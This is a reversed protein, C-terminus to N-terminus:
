NPSKDCSPMSACHSYTRMVHLEEYSVVGGLAEFIPSLREPGLETMLKLVREQEERSLKSIALIRVPDLTGGSRVYQGLHAVITSQKINYLAMLQEVTQGAAFAEGVEQWRPRREGGMGAFARQGSGGEGPKEREALGKETCYARILALFRDGYAALKRQGVGHMDLFRQPSQPYYIAMEVLSRDSFIVYPPLDAADAIERRM